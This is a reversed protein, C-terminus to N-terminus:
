SFKWSLWGLRKDIETLLNGTNSMESVLYVFSTPVSRPWGWHHRTTSQLRRERSDAEDETLQITAEGTYVRLARWARDSLLLIADHRRGLGSWNCQLGRASAKVCTAWESTLSATSYFLPLHVVRASAPLLRYGILFIETSSCAFGAGDYLM